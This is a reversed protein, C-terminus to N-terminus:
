MSDIRPRSPFVDHIFSSLFLSTVSLNGTLNEEDNSARANENLAIRPVIYQMREFSFYLKELKVEKTTEHGQTPIYDSKDSRIRKEPVYIERVALFRM